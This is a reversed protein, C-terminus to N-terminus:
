SKDDPQNRPSSKMLVFLAALAGGLPLGISKMLPSKLLMPVAAVAATTVLATTEAARRREVEKKHAIEATIRSVLYIALALLGAIGAMALPAWIPGLWLTMGAHAAILLFVVAVLAFLIIAAWLVGNKKLREVVEGVEIGLLSAIPYLLNLM